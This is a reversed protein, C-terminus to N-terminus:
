GRSLFPHRRSDLGYAQPVASYGGLITEDANPGIVAISSLHALDLPLLGGDNKLLTVAKEAARLALRRAEHNGTLAEARDADGFPHEFV